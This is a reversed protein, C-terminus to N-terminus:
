DSIAAIAAASTALDALIPTIIQTLSIVDFPRSDRSIVITSGPMIDKNSGFLSKRVLQSKGDPLIVFIKSKDASDKLGGASSIYQDVTFNPDFGVSASNLVEGVISVSSPRRPIHLEDSDQVPFNIIPDSKLALIDLNVVMRGLPEEERLKTILKSIPLLTFEGVEITDQTVVDVITNELEDAAREFAIKQSKAVDERFFLAGQFYAESTYGGARNIIDLIRDNPQISYEGPNKVEGSLLISRPKIGAVSSINIVDGNSLKRDLDKNINLYTLNRKASVEDIFSLELNPSGYVESNFGGALYIADEITEGQVIEYRHPRKFAGGITISEEIFPIFIVDGDQLVVDSELSGKLLFDYFDYTSVIKDDRKIQINRLSGEENVGGSVFLANSVSSFGSMVYRGPKYAEGLIYVGISRAESLSIDIEVGILETEVKKSLYNKAQEFTKGLFNVPGIYPLVVKGERNIFAKVTREKGGYFNVEIKDGPGLIYTSNVPTNDVPAFTTPSYQFFNFGYICESCYNESDEFNLREPKLTLSNATEFKEEIEEQLTSASEMKGMINARQDPPLQELMLKQEPSVESFVIL